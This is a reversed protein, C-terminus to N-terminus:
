SIFDNLNIKGNIYEEREKSMSIDESAIIKEQKNALKRAASSIRTNNRQNKHQGISDTLILKSLTGNLQPNEITMQDLVRDQRDWVDVINEELVKNFQEVKALQAADGEKRDFLAMPQIFKETLMFKIEGIEEVLRGNKSEANVVLVTSMDERDFKVCWDIHRHERFKVDFSDYVFEHKNLTITVGDGHLRNTFGTTEGFLDLYEEDSLEVHDDDSMEHWRSVYQDHLRMRRMEISQEVQKCVGEFDPFSHKIRDLFESNPQSEKRSTVGFGSWNSCLLQLEKNWEKFFPEVRKAKANRVRAPTYHTTMAEYVPVLVGKGYHDSQIQLSKYRKGFLERTHNAANRLAQRILGTTEHTGIAYGIPYNLYPDLIVVCTPRNHYTTVKNGESNLSTAQYLLEVDWGDISWYVMPVNPAKRKVQMNRSSRLASTGQNGSIIYLDLEKRYKAVTSDSIPKWGLKEAVEGYIRAIQMNDFNNHKRLLKGIVAKQEESVVKATNQNELKRSVLSSYGNKKYESLTRRLSAIKLTHGLQDRLIEVEECIIDWVPKVDPNKSNNLAKRFARRRSMAAVIANLVSANITYTEKLQKSLEKGSPLRYQRAFFDSAKYDVEYYNNLFVTEKIIRNPDGFQHFCKEQWTNPMNEFSFLAENGSGKGDRLRLGTTRSARKALADYTCVAISQPHSKIEKGGRIVTDSILFSIKVGIHGNHTIYPTENNQM